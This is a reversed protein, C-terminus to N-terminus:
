ASVSDEQATEQRAFRHKVWRSWCVAQSRLATMPTYSVRFSTAVGTRLQRKYDWEGVGMDLVCDHRRFGDEIARLILSIGPPYGSTAPDFGTRLALV